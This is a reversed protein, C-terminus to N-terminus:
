NKENNTLYDKLKKLARARHSIKNKLSLDMEAFTKDYGKPIFVKDFGFGSEGRNKKSLTGWVIGKFIKLTSGNYLALAATVKTKTSKNGVLKVTGETGLRQLFYKVFPGPLGKLSQIEFSIDEVLVPKKIKEYAAKAKQAIVQNLDLSQIEPVEIKSIKHKTDLIQNIELLKNKNTTVIVFNPPNSKSM